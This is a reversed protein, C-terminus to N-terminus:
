YLITAAVADAEAGLVVITNTAWHILTDDGSQVIDVDSRAVDLDIWDTETWDVITDTSGDDEAQRFHFTDRGDGGTLRDDGSGGYIDDYGIGGFITDDGAEGYLDTGGRKAKPRTFDRGHIEDDGAGGFADAAELLLDNGVNGFLQDAGSGGDLRDNGKGGKLYDRGSGGKLTDNGAGGFLRDDGNGGVLVDRGANGHLVDKGAKGTLTDHGLGGRLRDDLSGGVIVDDGSFFAAVHDYLADSLLSLWAANADAKVGTLSAITVGDYSVRYSEVTGSVTGLNGYSFRGTMEVTFTTERGTMDTSDRPYNPEVFPADETRAVIRSRSASEAGAVSFLDFSALEVQEPEFYSGLFDLGSELIRFTAM